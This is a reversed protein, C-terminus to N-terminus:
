VKNAKFVTTHLLFIFPFVFQHTNINNSSSMLNQALTKCVLIQFLYHYSQLYFRFPKNLEDSGFTLLIAYSTCYGIILRWM